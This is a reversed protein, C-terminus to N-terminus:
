ATAGVTAPMIGLQTLVDVQDFYLRVDAIKGDEVKM